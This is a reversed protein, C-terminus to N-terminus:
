TRSHGWLSNLSAEHPLTHSFYANFLMGMPNYEENPTDLSAYAMGVLNGKWSKKEKLTEEVANNSILQNAHSSSLITLIVVIFTKKM